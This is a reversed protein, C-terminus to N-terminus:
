FVPPGPILNEGFSVNPSGACQSCSEPPFLASCAGVGIGVNGEAMNRGFRNRCGATDFYLGAGGNFHLTNGEITNSAGQVYLGHASTSLGNGTSVNDRVLNRLSDATLWIGHEYSDRVVNGSITSGHTGVISIGADNVSGVV